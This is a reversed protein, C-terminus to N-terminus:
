GTFVGTKEKAAQREVETKLAAQKVYAGVDAKQDDSTIKAVIDSEPALVLFTAGFLTDARTTFVTIVEDSDAVAFKVEAGVSRGIW